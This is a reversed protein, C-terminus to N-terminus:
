GDGYAGAIADALVEVQGAFVTRMDFWLGGERIRALVSMAGKRLLEARVEVGVTGGGRLVVAYSLIEQGPV